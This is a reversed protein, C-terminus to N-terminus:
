VLEAIRKATMKSPTVTGALADFLELNQPSIRKRYLPLRSKLRRQM